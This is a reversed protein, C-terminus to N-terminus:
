RLSAEGKRWVVALIGAFRMSYFVLLQFGASQQLSTRVVLRWLGGLVISDQYHHVCIRRGITLVAYSYFGILCQLWILWGGFGALSYSPCCNLDLNHAGMRLIM